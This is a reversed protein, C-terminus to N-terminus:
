DFQFLLLGLTILFLGCTALWIIGSLRSIPQTLQDVKALEFGKVFGMLHILGHVGTIFLFIFKLM